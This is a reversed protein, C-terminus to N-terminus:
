VHDDETDTAEFAAVIASVHNRYARETDDDMDPYQEVEAMLRKREAACEQQLRNRIKQVAPDTMDFVLDAASVAAELKSTYIGALDTLQKQHEILYARNAERGDYLEKITAILPHACGVQDIEWEQIGTILIAPDDYDRIKSEQTVPESDMMATVTRRSLVYKKCGLMRGKFDDQNRHRFIITTTITSGNSEKTYTGLELYM